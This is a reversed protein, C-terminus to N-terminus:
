ALLCVRAYLPRPSLCSLLSPLWSIPRCSTPSGEWEDRLCRYPPSLSQLPLINLPCPHPFPHSSLRRVRKLRDLVYFTLLLSVSIMPPVHYSQQLHDLFEFAQHLLMEGGVKPWFKFDDSPLSDQQLYLFIRTCGLPSCSLWMTSSISEPFILTGTWLTQCRSFALHEEDKDASEM